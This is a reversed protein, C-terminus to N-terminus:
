CKTKCREIDAKMKQEFQWNPSTEIDLIHKSIPAEYNDKLKGLIEPNKCGSSLYYIVKGLDQWIIDPDLYARSCSDIFLNNTDFTIKRTSGDLDIIPNSDDILNRILMDSQITIIKDLYDRYSDDPNFWYLIKQNPYLEFIFCNDRKVCTSKNILLQNNTKFKKEPDDKVDEIIKQYSPKLKTDHYLANVFDPHSCTNFDGSLILTECTKSWEIGIHTFDAYVLSFSGILLLFPILLLIKM